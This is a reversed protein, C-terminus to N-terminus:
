DIKELTAASVVALREQVQRGGEKDGEMVEADGEKMRQIEADWGGRYKNEQKGRRVGKRGVGWELCGRGLSAFEDYMEDIDRDEIAGENRQIWVAWERDCVVKLEDFFAKDGKEDIRWKGKERLAGEGEEERNEGDKAEPEERKGHRLTCTVLAHDSNIEDRAREGCM